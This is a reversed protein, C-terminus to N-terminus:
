AGPASETTSGEFCNWVRETNIYAFKAELENLFNRCLKGGPSQPFVKAGREALSHAALLDDDAQMVRAERECALAMIEFDAYTSIFLNLATLYRKNKDEGFAANWAWTLRELDTAAFALQPPSDTKHFQLLRQYTLIAKVVPSNTDGNAARSIDWTIFNEVSELAPSDASLEFTGEAKAGAQEGSTYFELAEQAIFDFLTPRYSDPTSGKVLLDDWAAIPTSKLAKEATLANQFHVGIEAYLRPLDWTTFDKGPKSGTATRQMFRWKNQQFYQWYWHALLTELIPTMERPATSIVTELRTIKEEPKNGEIAGALTIKRGIAKVAEAYAKDRMAGAIIPELNTIGTKPLGRNVADDVAKWQASRPNEAAHSSMTIGAMLLLLFLHITKMHSYVLKDAPGTIAGRAPLLLIM